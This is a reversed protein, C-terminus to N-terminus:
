SLVPCSLVPCSLVPCSLVPCSLVPCTRLGLVPCSLVPCSLVPCSLEHESLVPCSLVCPCRSSPRGLTCLAGFVQGRMGQFGGPLLSVTHAGSCRVKIEGPGPAARECPVMRLDAIAGRPCPMLHCDPPEARASTSRVLKAGYRVGGCAAAGFPGNAAGADAMRQMVVM